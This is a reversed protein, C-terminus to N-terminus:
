PERCCSVDGLSTYTTAQNVVYLKSLIENKKRKLLKKIKKKKNKIKM